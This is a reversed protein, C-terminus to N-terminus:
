RRFSRKSAAEELFGDQIIGPQALHGEEQSECGGKCNRSKLVFGAPSGGNM